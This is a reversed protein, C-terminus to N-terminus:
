DLWFEPKASLKAPTPRPRSPSGVLASRISRPDWILGWFEANDAYGLPRGIQEGSIMGSVGIKGNALELKACAKLAHM